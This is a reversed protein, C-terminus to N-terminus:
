QADNIAIILHLMRSPGKCSWCCGCKEFIKKDFIFIRQTTTADICKKEECYLNRRKHMPIERTRLRSPLMM